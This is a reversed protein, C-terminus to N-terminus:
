STLMNQLNNLTLADNNTNTITANAIAAIAHLLWGAAAGAGAGAGAWGAISGASNLLSTCSATFCDTGSCGSTGAGTDACSIWLM